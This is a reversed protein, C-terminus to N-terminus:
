LMLIMMIRPGNREKIEKEEFHTLYFLEGSIDIVKFNVEKYKFDATLCGYIKM